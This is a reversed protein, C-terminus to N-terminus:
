KSKRWSLIRNNKPMSLNGTMQLGLRQAIEDIMEVQRLGRNPSSEKLRKDFAINSPAMDIDRFKFPGYLCFIGDKPLVSAAGTIMYKVNKWSLIHSTNASFVADYPTKPWAECVNLVIPKCLNPAPYAHLWKNIDDQRNELDSPQWDLWPLRPSFWAAHQGTGSGIELVKSTQKFLLVLQEIIPDRNNQCSLSIPLITM